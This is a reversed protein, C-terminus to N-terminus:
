RVVSVAMSSGGVRLVNGEPTMIRPIDIVSPSATKRPADNSGHKVPSAKALPDAVRRTGAKPMTHAILAPKCSHPKCKTAPKVLRAEPPNWIEVYHESAAVTSALAFLMAGAGLVRLM